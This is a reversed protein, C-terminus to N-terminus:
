LFSVRQHRSDECAKRIKDIRTAFFARDPDWDMQGLNSDADADFVIRIPFV